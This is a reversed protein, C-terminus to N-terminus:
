LLPAKGCRLINYAEKLNNARKSDTFGLSTKQQHLQTEMVHASIVAQGGVRPVATALSGGDALQPCPRLRYPEMCRVPLM